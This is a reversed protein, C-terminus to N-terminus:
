DLEPETYLVQGNGLISSLYLKLLQCRGDVIVPSQIMGFGLKLGIRLMM